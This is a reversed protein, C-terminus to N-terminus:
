EVLERSGIGRARDVLAGANRGVRLVRAVPKGQHVSPCGLVIIGERVPRPVLRPLHGADVGARPLLDAFPNRSSACRQTPASPAARSTVSDLEGAHDPADGVRSRRPVSIAGMRNAGSSRSGSVSRATIREHQTLAGVIAHTSGSETRRRSYVLFSRDRGVAGTPRAAAHYDALNRADCASAIGYLFHAVGCYLGVVTAVRGSGCEEAADDIYSGCSSVQWERATRSSM